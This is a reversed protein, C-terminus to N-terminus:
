GRKWKPKLFFMIPMQNSKTPTPTPAPPPPVSGNLYNWWYYANTVRSDFWTGYEYCWFFARTMYDLDQELTVYDAFSIDYGERMEWQLGNELEYQIRDLQLDYNEISEGMSEVWDGYKWWPTWQVLGFGISSSEGYIPYGIQWQGPNFLGEDEMNGLMGCVAEMTWGHNLFYGAIIDVNHAKTARDWMPNQNTWEAIWDYM